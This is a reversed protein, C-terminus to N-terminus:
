SYLKLKTWIKMINIIYLIKYILIRKKKLFLIVYVIDYVKEFEKVFYM